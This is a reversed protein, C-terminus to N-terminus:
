EMAELILDRVPARTKAERMVKQINDKFDLPSSELVKLSALYDEMWGEDVEVLDEDPPATLSLSDESCDLHQFTVAGSAHLLGVRPKHDIETVKRRFFGGCNVVLTRGDCVVREFPIHNDGVVVVDFERFDRSVRSLKSAKDADQHGTGSVWLFQHTVLVQKAEPSRTKPVDEGFPRGYFAFGRHYLPWGGLETVKGARTLTGYASRYLLEPRHNPMDHNGPVAHLHPLRELAWNILEPPSSWKDFIDGACVVLSDPHRAHLDRLQKLSREMAAFWSQEEARAVPAKVCLHIDAVLLAVVPSHLKM